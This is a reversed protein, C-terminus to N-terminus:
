YPAADRLRSRYHRALKPRGEREHLAVLQELGYPHRPHLAVLEHLLPRAEDWDDAALLSEIRQRLRRARDNPREGERADAPSSERTPPEADTPGSDGADPPTSTERSVDGADDRDRSRLSYSRALREGVAGRGRDDEGAPDNRSDSPERDAPPESRHREALAPVAVCLSAIDLRNHRLVPDLMEFRREELFRKWVGPVEAGPLDDERHFELLHREIDALRHADLEDCVSRAVPLLDLHAIDGFGADIDHADARRELLPLDFNAGNYTCVLESADFRDAARRLAAPEGRPDTLVAHRVCFGSEGLWGWGICFAYDDSELGTTETDVFLIDSASPADGSSSYEPVFSEILADWSANRLRDFTASGHRDSPRYVHEPVRLAEASPPRGDEEPKGESPPNEDDDAGPPAEREDTQDARFVGHSEEDSQAREQARRRSGHLRELKDKFSGM